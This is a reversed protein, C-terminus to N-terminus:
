EANSAFQFPSLDRCTPAWHASQFDFFCQKSTDERVRHLLFLGNRLWIIIHSSFHIKYWLQCHCARHNSRSTGFCKGFGFKFWFVPWPWQKTTQPRDSGSHSKFGLFVMVDSFLAWCISSYQFSCRRFSASTLLFPGNRCLLVWSCTVCSISAEFTLHIPSHFKQRMQGRWRVEWCDWSVVVEGIMKVVKKVPSISGCGAPPLFYKGLTWRIEM